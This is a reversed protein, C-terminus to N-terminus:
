PTALPDAMEGAAKAKEAESRGAKVTSGERHDPLLLPSEPGTPIASGDTYLLHQGWYFPHHYAIGGTKPDIMTAQASEVVAKYVTEIPYGKSLGWAMRTTFYNNADTQEGAALLLARLGRSRLISVLRRFGDGREADASGWVPHSITLTQHGPQGPVLDNQGVRGYTAEGEAPSTVFQGSSMDVPALVNLNIVGSLATVLDEARTQDGALHIPEPQGVFRTINEALQQGSEPACPADTGGNPCGISGKGLPGFLGLNPGEVLPTPGAQQLFAYRLSYASGLFLPAQGIDRRGPTKLVLAHLPFRVLPGDPIVTLTRGDIAAM